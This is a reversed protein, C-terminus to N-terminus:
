AAKLVVKLFGKFCSFVNIHGRRNSVAGHISKFFFLFIDAIVGDHVIFVTRDLEYKASSILLRLCFSRM